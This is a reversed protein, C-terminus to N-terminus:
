RGGVYCTTGSDALACRVRRLSLSATPVLDVDIRGVHAIHVPVSAGFGSAPTSGPENSSGVFAPAVTSVGAALLAAGWAHGGVM